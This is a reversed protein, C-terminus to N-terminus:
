VVPSVSLLIRGRSEPKNNIVLDTEFSFSESGAIRGLTTEAVGILDYSTESDVDIVEFKLYQQKEFHFYLPITTQFNPNLNDKVIETMGIRNWPTTNSMRM